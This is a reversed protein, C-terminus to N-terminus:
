VIPKDETVTIKFPTETNMEGFINTAQNQAWSFAQHINDKAVWTNLTTSPYPYGDGGKVIQVSFLAM